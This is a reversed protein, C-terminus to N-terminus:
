SEFRRDLGTGMLLGSRLAAEFQASRATPAFRNYAGLVDHNGAGALIEPANDQSLRAFDPLPYAGPQMFQPPQRVIEWSQGPARLPCTEACAPDSCTACSSAEGDRPDDCRCFTQDPAITLRRLLVSRLAVRRVEGCSACRTVSASTSSGADASAPGPIDAPPHELDRVYCNTFQAKDSCGLVGDFLSDVAELVGTVRGGGIVTLRAFRASVAPPLALVETSSAPTPLACLVSDTIELRGSLATLDVPGLICSALTVTATGPAPPEGPPPKAALAAATAGPHLTVDLLTLDLDGGLLAISGALVLGGITIAGPQNPSAPDGSPAPGLLSLAVPADIVVCPQSDQEGLISLSQAAAPSLQQAAITRTAGGQLTLVTCAAKSGSWAGLQRELWAPAGGDQLVVAGAPAPPSPRPGIGGIAGSMALGYDVGLAAPAEWSPPWSFLGLEPDVAAAPTLGLASAPPTAAPPPPPGTPSPPVMVVQEGADCVFCTPLAAAFAGAAAAATPSPLTFPLAVDLVQGAPATFSMVSGPPAGTLLGILPPTLPLTAAALGQRASGALRLPNAGGAQSPGISLPESAAAGPVIVLSPGVAGARLAKVAAASVRKGPTVAAAEIAAQLLTVLYALTPTAPVDIALSATADGFTITLDSTVPTISALDIPGGMLVPFDPPVPPYGALSMARVQGPPLATWVGKGNRARIVLGRASGYLLADPAGTAPDPSMAAYRALDQALMRTTIAAPLATIPGAAVWDLPTSPAVFLPQVLGLPNFGYYGPAAMSAPTAGTVTFVPLRWVRLLGAPEALVGPADPLPWAAWPTAPGPAHLCYWGSAGRILRPLAAAIGKRRRFGLTDAVLARHEPRVPRAIDLGVLAGILPVDDLPCTEIFWDQELDAIGAALRARVHDFVKTLALLPYGQAIDQRRFVAPLLDYLVNEDCSEPAATM